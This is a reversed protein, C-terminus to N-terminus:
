SKQDLLDLINEIFHTEWLQAWPNLKCKSTWTKQDFIAYAAKILLQFLQLPKFPVNQSFFIPIPLDKSSLNADEQILVQLLHVKLGQSTILHWCHFFPIEQLLQSSIFFNRMSDAVAQILVQLLHAKPGQSTIRHWELWRIAYTKKDM